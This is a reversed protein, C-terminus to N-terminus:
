IFSGKPIKPFVALLPLKKIKPKKRKKPKKIKKPKKYGAKVKITKHGITRGFFKDKVRKKKIVTARGHCIKCVLYCNSQSNNAPNNNKHDFDYTRSGWILKRKCHRCKSTTKDDDGARGAAKNWEIKKTSVKFAKRKNKKKGTLNILELKIPKIGFNYNGAM